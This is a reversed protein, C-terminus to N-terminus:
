AGDDPKPGTFDASHGELVHGLLEALFSLVGKKKLLSREMDPANQLLCFVIITWLLGSLRQAPFGTKLRTPSTKPACIM